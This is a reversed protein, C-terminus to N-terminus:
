ECIRIRVIREDGFDCVDVFCVPLSIFVGGPFPCTVGGAERRVFMVLENLLCIHLRANKCLFISRDSSPICCGRDYRERRNRKGKVVIRNRSKNQEGKRERQTTGTDTKM